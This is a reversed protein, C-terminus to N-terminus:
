TKRKNISKVIYDVLIGILIISFLIQFCIAIKVSKSNPTMDGFNNSTSALISFYLFDWYSVKEIRNAHYNRTLTYIDRNINRLYKNYSILSDSNSLYENYLYDNKLALDKDAYQSNNKLANTRIDLEIRLIELKLAAIKVKENAILININPNSKKTELYTIINSISDRQKVLEKTERHILLDINSTISQATKKQISDRLQKVSKEYNNLSDIKATFVSISDFKSKLVNNFENINFPIKNNTINYILDDYPMTYIDNTFENMQSEIIFTSTNKRFQQWYIVSFTFISFLYLALIKSLKNM